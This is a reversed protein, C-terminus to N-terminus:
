AIDAIEDAHVTIIYPTHVGIYANMYNFDIHEEADQATMGDRIICIDIMKRMDYVAVLESGCREAMGIFADQFEDYTVYESM